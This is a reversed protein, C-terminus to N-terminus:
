RRAAAAAARRRQQRPTTTRREGGSSPQLDDAGLHRGREPAQVGGARGWGVRRWWRGWGSSPNVVGVAKWNSSRRSRMGAAARKGSGLFGEDSVSEDAVHKELWQYAVTTRDPLHSRCDQRRRLPPEM